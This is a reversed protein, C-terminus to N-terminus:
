LNNWKNNYLRIM